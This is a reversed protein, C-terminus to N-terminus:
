LRVGEERLMQLTVQRRAREARWEAGRDRSAKARYRAQTAQRREPYKAYYYRQYAARWAPQARQQQNNCTVCQCTSTYRQGPHGKFCPHGIYRKEGAGRARARAEGAQTGANM